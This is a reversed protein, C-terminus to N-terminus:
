ASGNGEETELSLDEPTLLMSWCKRKEYEQETGSGTLQLPRHPETTKNSILVRKFISAHIFLHGFGALRSLQAWHDLNM